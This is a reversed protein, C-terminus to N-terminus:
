PADGPCISVAALTQPAPPTFVTAPVQVQNPQMILCVLILPLPRVDWLRSSVTGVPERRGEKVGTHTGAPRGDRGGRSQRGPELQHGAGARGRPSVACHPSTFNVIVAEPSWSWSDQQIGEQALGMCGAGGSM